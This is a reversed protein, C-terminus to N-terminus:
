VKEKTQGFICGFLEVMVPAAGKNRVFHRAAGTQVGAKVNENQM